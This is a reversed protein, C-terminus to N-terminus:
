RVARIVGGDTWRGRDLMLRVGDLPALPEGWGGAIDPVAGAAGLEILGAHSIMLVAGGDPVRELEARWLAAQSRAYGAIEENGRVLAVFGAFSQPPRRDLIRGIPEPMAELEEREEDVVCGLAAATEIARAKPSTVVRAFPGITPGIRRALAVGARNLHPSPPDRLSHRRHELIRM